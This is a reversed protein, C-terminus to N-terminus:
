VVLTEATCSRQPTPRSPSEASAITLAAALITEAYARDREFLIIKTKDREWGDGVPFKVVKDDNFTTRGFM